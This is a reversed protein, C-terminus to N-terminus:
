GSHARRDECENQAPETCQIEAGRLDAIPLVAEVREAIYGQDCNAPLDRAINLLADYLKATKTRIPVLELTTHNDGRPLRAMYLQVRRRSKAARALLDSWDRGLKPWNAESIASVEVEEVGYDFVTIIVGNGTHDGAIAAVQKECVSRINDQYDRQVLARLFQRERLGSLESLPGARYLACNERHGGQKWDFVQCAQSCYYFTKCGSCRRCSATQMEGCETNDCDPSVRAEKLIAGRKEVLDTLATWQKYIDLAKFETTSSTHALQAVSKKMRVVVHYYILGHTMLKHLLVKLNHGVYSAFRTACDVLLRLLGAKLAEVLCLYWSPTTLLRELLALSLRVSEHTDADLVELLSGMVNVFIPVFGGARLTDSFADQLVHGNPQPYHRPYGAQLFIVLARVYFSHPALKWSDRYIVIDRSYSLVLYALNNLTGGAGEIIEAFNNPDTLDLIPLFGALCKHMAEFTGQEKKHVPLLAWARGIVARLGPTPSVVPSFTHLDSSLYNRTIFQFFQGLLQLLDPRQNCAFLLYETYEYVFCVWPWIRPWLDSGVDGVSMHFINRLALVGCMLHSETALNLPDLEESSPIRAPDLHTLFVPLFLNKQAVPAQKAAEDAKLLDDFTAGNRCAGLAVRRSRIPLRQLSSIQLAAHMSTPPPFLRSIM